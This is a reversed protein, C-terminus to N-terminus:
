FNQRKQGAGEISRADPTCNVFTLFKFLLVTNNEIRRNSTLSCGGLFCAVSELRISDLGIVACKTVDNVDDIESGPLGLLFPAELCTVHGRCIGTNVFALDSSLTVNCAELVSEIKGSNLIAWPQIQLDNFGEISGATTICEGKIEASQRSHIKSETTLYLDKDANIKVAAVQTFSGSIKIDQAEIELVTMSDLKGKTLGKLRVSGEKGTVLKLGQLIDISGFETKEQEFSKGVRVDVFGTCEMNGTLTLTNQVNITSPEETIISQTCRLRGPIQLAQTTINICEFECKIISLDCEFSANSCKLLNHTGFIVEEISETVKIEQILTLKNQGEISPREKIPTNAATCKICTAQLSDEISFMSKMDRCTNDESGHFEVLVHGMDCEKRLNLCKSIRFICQPEVIDKPKAITSDISLRGSVCNVELQRPLIFRGINEDKGGFSSFYLVKLSQSRVFLDNKVYIHGGLTIADKSDIEILMSSSKLIGQENPLIESKVHINGDCEIAGANLTEEECNISLLSAESVQKQYKKTSPSLKVM